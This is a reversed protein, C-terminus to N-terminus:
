RSVGRLQLWDGDTPEPLSDILHSLITLTSLGSAESLVRLNVGAALQRVLWTYRLRTVDPRQEPQSVVMDGILMSLTNKSGSGGILLGDDGERSAAATVTDEWEVACPVRRGDDGAQVWVVGDPDQSVHRGRTTLMDTSNFGTGLTLAFVTSLRRRRPMRPQADAARFLVALETDTYPSKAPTRGIPQSSATVQGLLRRITSRYTARSSDSLDDMGVAVYRAVTDDSFVVDDRLPLFETACWALLGSATTIMEGAQEATDPGATRVRARVMDGHEAWLKEDIQPVRESIMDEVSWGM